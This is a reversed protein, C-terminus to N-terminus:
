LARVTATEILILLTVAVMPNQARFAAFGRM